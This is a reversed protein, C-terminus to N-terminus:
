LRQAAQSTQITYTSIFKAINSNHSANIFYLHQHKKKAPASIIAQLLLLLLSLESFEDDELSYECEYEDDESTEPGPMSIEEDEARSLEEESTLEGGSILEEESILKDEPPLEEEARSLEDESSLEEKSTLEEELAIDLEEEAGGTAPVQDL